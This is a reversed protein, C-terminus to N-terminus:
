DPASGCGEVAKEQRKGVVRGVYGETLDESFTESLEEDQSLQDVTRLWEVSNRDIFPIMLRGANVMKRWKGSDPDQYQMNRGFIVWETCPAMSRNEFQVGVSKSNIGDPLMVQMEMLMFFQPIPDPSRNILHLEYSDQPDSSVYDFHQWFSFRSAQSREERDADERSQDLQDKAIEASYYTAVGTFLLTGIGAIIAVITGLRTWDVRIWRDSRSQRNGRVRRPRPRQRTM